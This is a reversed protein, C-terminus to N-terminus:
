AGEGPRAPYVWAGVRDIWRAGGWAAIVITLAQQWYQTDAMKTLFFAVVGALLAASMHAAVWRWPVAPAAEREMRQLMAVAGSFLSLVVVVLVDLWGLQGFGQGLTVTGAWTVMPWCLVALLKTTHIVRQVAKM